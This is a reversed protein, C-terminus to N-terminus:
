SNKLMNLGEFIRNMKSFFSRLLELEVPGLFLKVERVGKGTFLTFFVYLYIPMLGGVDRLKAFSINVLNKAFITDFDSDYNFLFHDSGSSCSTLIVIVFVCVIESYLFNGEPM